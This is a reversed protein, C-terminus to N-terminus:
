AKDIVFGSGLAEQTQVTPGFPNLFPDAPTVIESKATIQVVGPAADRYIEGITLGGRRSSTATASVSTTAPVPMERVETTRTRDLGGAAFAVGLALGAGVAGAGIM